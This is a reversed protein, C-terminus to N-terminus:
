EIFGDSNVDGLTVEPEGGYDTTPYEIGDWILTESSMHHLQIVKIVQM